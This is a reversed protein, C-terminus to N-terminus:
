LWRLSDLGTLEEEELRAPTTPELIGVATDGQALVRVLKRSPVNVLVAGLTTNRLQISDRGGGAIKTTGQVTVNILTVDGEGIGETLYLTGTITINQLTVGPTSITANGEIVVTGQFPGYTGARNYLTGVARDLAALAEARTILRTPQFTGDPYGSMYGGKVAAAIATESWAPIQDKDAFKKLLGRYVVLM